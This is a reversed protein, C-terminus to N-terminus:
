RRYNSSVDKIDPDSEYEWVEHKKWVHNVLTEMSECLTDRERHRYCLVCAFGAGARHCKILFRNGLAYTRDEFTEVVQDDYPGGKTLRERVLEKDIKWARGPEIPMGAGCAPCECAGGEDFVADLPRRSDQLMEAYRCFLPGPNNFMVMTGARKPGESGPPGELRLMPSSSIRRVPGGPRQLPASQLMRQYQDRLARIAGDRAFESANYLKNIDPMRGTILSDELLRIVTGQLTIIQGQLQTQALV